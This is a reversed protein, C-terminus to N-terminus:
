EGKKNEDDKRAAVRPLKLTLLGDELTLELRHPDTRCPLAIRKRFVGRPLELEYFSTGRRFCSPTPRVGSVEVLVPSVAVKMDRRAVGPVELIVYVEDGAVFVDTAPCWFSEASPFNFEWLDAMLSEVEDFLQVIDSIKRRM